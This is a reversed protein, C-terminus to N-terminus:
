QKIKRKGDKDIYPTGSPLNDYQQKSQPRAVFEPAKNGTVRSYRTRLGEIEARKDALSTEFTDSRTMPAAMLMSNLEESKQEIDLELDKAPKEKTEAKKEAEVGGLQEAVKKQSFAVEGVPVKADPDYFQAIQEQPVGSALLSEYTELFAQQRAAKAENEAKIEKNLLAVTGNEARNKLATVTDAILPNDMLQPNDALADTVAAYALRPDAGIFQNTFKQFNAANRTQRENEAKDFLNKERLQEFEYFKQSYDLAQTARDLRESEIQRMAEEQQIRAAQEADWAEQMRIARRTTGEPRGGYAEPLQYAPRIGQRVEEAVMAERTEKSALPSAGWGREMRMREESTLPSLGAEAFRQRQAPDSSTGWGWRVRAMDFASLPEAM